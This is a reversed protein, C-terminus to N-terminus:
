AVPLSLLQRAQAPTAVPRDYEETAMRAVRAVLEANSATLREKDFRVNDELGTRCHGGLELAWKNLTLQHRGIGAATWTSGPLLKNLQEIEFELIERRPPLIGKMGFIFQIHAPDKLQGSQVMDYANYLMSLDFCEIEPKIDLELMTAALENILEPHNEYIMGPFNVSGTSLSAMDPRYKLMGGRMSSERGRGGTSFQVIMSPCHKNVGEQFALFKEPDSSPKGEEDRVHVHVITAGATFAEVTSDIQEEVTIPVAPNDKKQPLSGTIAVAIIVPTTM